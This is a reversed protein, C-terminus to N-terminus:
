IQVIKVELKYKSAPYHKLTGEQVSDQYKKNLDMVSQLTQRPFSEGIKRLAVGGSKNGNEVAYVESVSNVLVDGVRIEVSEKCESEILVSKM